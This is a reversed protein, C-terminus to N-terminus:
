TSIFKELPPILLDALKSHYTAGQSLFLPGLFSTRLTDYQNKLSTFEIRKYRKRLAEEDVKTDDSELNILNQEELFDVVLKYNPKGTAKQIQRIICYILADFSVDKPKGIKGTQPKLFNMILSLGKSSEYTRVFIHEKIARGNSKRLWGRKQLRDINLFIEKLVKTKWRDNGKFQEMSIKNLLRYTRVLQKLINLPLFNSIEGTHERNIFIGVSKNMRYFKEVWSEFVLGEFDERPMPAVSLDTSIQLPKGRVPIKGEFPPQIEHRTESPFNDAVNNRTPKAKRKGKGM